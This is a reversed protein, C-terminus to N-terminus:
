EATSRNRQHLSMESKSNRKKIEILLGIYRAKLPVSKEYKSLLVSARLLWPLDFPVVCLTARRFGLTRSLGRLLLTQHSVQTVGGRKDPHALRGETSSRGGMVLWDASVYVFITSFLSKLGVWFRGSFLFGPTRLDFYFYYLRLTCILYELM